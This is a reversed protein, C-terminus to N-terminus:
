PPAHRLPIPVAGLGSRTNDTTAPAAIGFSLLTLKRGRKM